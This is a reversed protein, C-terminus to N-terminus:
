SRHGAGARKARPHPEGEAFATTASVLLCAVLTTQLVRM